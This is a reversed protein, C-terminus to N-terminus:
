VRPLKKSHNPDILRRQHHVQEYAGGSGDQDDSVFTLLNRWAGMSSNNQTISCNDDISLKESVSIYAKIKRLAAQAEEASEAPIRGVGCELSGM